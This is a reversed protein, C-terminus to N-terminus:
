TRVVKELGKTLPLGQKVSLEYFSEHFTVINGSHEPINLNALVCKLKSQLHALAVDRMFLYTKFLLIVDCM